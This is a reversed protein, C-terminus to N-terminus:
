GQPGEGFGQPSVCIKSKQDYGEILSLSLGGLSPTLMADLWLEINDDIEVV